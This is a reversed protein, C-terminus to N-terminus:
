KPTDVKGVFYGITLGLLGTLVQLSKNDPDRIVIYIVACAFVITLTSVMTLKITDQFPMEKILDVITKKSQSDLFTVLETGRYVAKKIEGKEFYWAWNDVGDKKYNVAVLTGGAISIQEASVPVTVGRLAEFYAVARKGVADDTSSNDSM